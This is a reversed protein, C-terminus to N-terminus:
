ADLLDDGDQLFGGVHQGGPLRHVGGVDLVVPSVGVHNPGTFAQFADNRVNLTLFADNRAHRRRGTPPRLKSM